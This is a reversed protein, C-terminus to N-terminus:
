QCNNELLNRVIGINWASDHTRPDNLLLKLIDLYGNIASWRIAQNNQDSPNVREDALLIKVINYQGKEAAVSLTINGEVSPDVREDQLLTKVLDELGSEAAKYIADNNQAAPDFRDHALLIQVIEDHDNEAALIIAQNGQDSPNVREDALLFNLTDVDGNEAADIILCNGFCSPDAQFDSILLRIAETFAHQSAIDLAENVLQRPGNVYKKLLELDKLCVVIDIKVCFPALKNFRRNKLIHRYLTQSTKGLINKQKFEYFEDHNYFDFYQFGICQPLKLAYCLTQADRFGLYEIIEIILELPLTWIWSHPVLGTVNLFTPM